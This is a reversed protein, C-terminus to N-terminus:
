MLTTQMSTTQTALSERWRGSSLAPITMQLFHVSNYLVCFGKYLPLHKTYSRDTYKM